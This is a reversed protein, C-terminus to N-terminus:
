FFLGIFKPRIAVHQNQILGVFQQRLVKLRHQIAQNGMQRLLTLDHEVRGSKWASDGREHLLVHAIRLGM